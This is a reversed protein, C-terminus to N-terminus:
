LKTADHRPVKCTSHGDCLREVEQAFLSWLERTLGGADRGAEGVFWTVVRKNPQYTSKRTERLLDDVVHDRRIHFEQTEPILNSQLNMVADRLTEPSCNIISIIGNYAVGRICKGLQRPM